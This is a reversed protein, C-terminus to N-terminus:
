RSKAGRGQRGGAAGPPRAAARRARRLSVGHRERRGRARWPGAKRAWHGCPLRRWHKLPKRPPRAAGLWLGCRPGREHDAWLPKAPAGHPSGRLVM